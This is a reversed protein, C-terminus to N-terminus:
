ERGGSVLRAVAEIDHISDGLVRVDEASLGGPEAPARFPLDALVPVGGLRALTARNDDEIYGRPGPEPRNFVLGGVCLTRRSLEALSLLTHNLTGLTPRAVLVVPLGLAAMLDAMTEEETIPVLIGGAGEVVIAQHREALRRSAHVIRDISIRVNERGAALHPSCPDRFRCPCMLDQESREPDLGNRTLAFELDPAALGGPGDECGTQIPKVPVADIGRRRLAAVLTATVVTKGVGTDTGTVFVGRLTM